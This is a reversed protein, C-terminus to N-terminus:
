RREACDCQGLNSCTRPRKTSDGARSFPNVTNKGTKFRDNGVADTLGAEIKSEPIIPLLDQSQELGLLACAPCAWDESTTDDAALLGACGAHYARPCNKCGILGGARKCVFCDSSHPDGAIFFKRILLSPRSSLARCGVIGSSRWNSDGRIRTTDIRCAM